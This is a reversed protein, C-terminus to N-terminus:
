VSEKEWAVLRRMAEDAMVVQDAEATYRAIEDDKSHGTISKILQNSLGIEAMRRAAAKRLGHASCQKLGADDCQERFWNGFGNATFPKGFSTELLTDKGTPTAIIIEALRPHMPIWLGKGTKQQTVKIRGDKIDGRGMKVADSRRQATYLMIAMALRPKSGVPHQAEFQVIEKENWTHFGKSKVKFKDSLRAPNSEILGIKIAYDFLNILLKRTRNAVTPAKSLRALIRDMDAVTTEAVIRHGHEDRFREFLRSYVRKTSEAGINTWRPSQYYQAILMDFTGAPRKIAQGAEIKRIAEWMEPSNPKADIYTSPYGKRRYRYRWKGRNDKFASVYKPMRPVTMM